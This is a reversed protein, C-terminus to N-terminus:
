AADADILVKLGPWMAPPYSTRCWSCTVVREGPALRLVTGCVGGDEFEAPCNGLRRGLVRDVAPAVISRVDDVLARIERALDGAQPWTSAIYPMHGLLGSAATALRGDVSGEHVLPSMGRDTRVATEWDELVGVAGGPGRLDLVRENVPLPAHVPASGRGLGAPTSSPALYPALAAYLTPLSELRVRLDRTCRPCLQGGLADRDTCHLCLTVTM